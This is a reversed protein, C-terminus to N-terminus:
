LLTLWKTMDSEATEQVTAKWAGRDMSNGLCSYQLPYGSGEELSRGSGPISGHDGANRPSEKGASNGPIPSEQHSQTSFRGAIHPVQTWYRTQSSGRSFPMVVWELVRAQLIGTSLSAQCAVTEPTAFYHAVLCFVTSKSFCNGMEEEGYARAVM